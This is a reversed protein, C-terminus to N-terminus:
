SCTLLHLELCIQFAPELTTWLHTYRPPQVLMFQKSFGELSYVIEKLIVDGVDGLVLNVLMFPMCYNGPLM